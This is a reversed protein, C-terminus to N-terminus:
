ERIAIWNVTDPVTGYCCFSFGASSVGGVLVCNSNPITGTGGGGEPTLTVSPAGNFFMAPFTVATPTNCQTPNQERGVQLRGSPTCLVSGNENVGIIAENVSCTGTVRRQTVASNISLVADGTAVGGQLGGGTTTTISTIDGVPECTVTGNQAVTRIANATGCVGTVRTQIVNQDRGITVDTTGSVTLGSGAAPMISALGVDDPECAVTPNIQRISSGDPCSTTIQRQYDGPALGGFTTASNAVDATAASDAVDANAARLAFPVSRVAFRPNLDQGDVSVALFLDGGAFDGLDLATQSGVAVTVLGQNAATSHTESWIPAGGSAASYLELTLSIAGDVAVGADSLRGTFTITDPVAHANGAVATMVGITLALIARQMTM